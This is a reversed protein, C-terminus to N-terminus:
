KMAYDELYSFHPTLNGSKLITARDIIDSGGKIIDGLVFKILQEGFYRSADRPLENPMNGVAMIDVSQPLYPETKKGTMKDVGYVPNEMSADGLNCPISGNEDDTIDAITQIRFGKQRMAEMTFLRPINKDWYIGNMLIDTHSYYKEFTCIYDQPNSHFDDRKYTGKEKHRYLNGGKLHVYVPYNFSKEIFEDTEVEQIDMLNMIELIGHAVRGSGTVAIKVPPIKLGFYTHILKSYDKQKYVRGLSFTKTREGYAMMGNHAGVVGAFFGFGIIRQGDEHELCEYDILTIKKQVMAQMLKKNHPQKKKTHSFFMYTKGEILMDIPVEKIGLLLDCHSLDDNIEVGARVYEKDSFSRNSSPQVVVSCDVNKLMWRCQAPTLAVRNDAPTKGEKILGIKLMFAAIKLPACPLASLNIM